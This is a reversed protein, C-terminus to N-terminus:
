ACIKRREGDYHLREIIPVRGWKTWPVKNNQKTNGKTNRSTCKFPIRTEQNFRYTGTEYEITKIIIDQAYTLHVYSSMKSFQFVM